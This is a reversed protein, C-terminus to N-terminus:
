LYGFRRLQDGLMQDFLRLTEEDMERRWRGVSQEPSPSTMHARKKAPPAVSARGELRCGLWRSLRDLETEWQLVLDEYRVVLHQESEVEDPVTGLLRRRREIFEFLYSRESQGARRGFGYYGRRTDFARISLWVDRPDRVLHIVRLPVVEQAFEVVWGPTKEAYAIPTEGVRDGWVERIRGGVALWLAELVEAELPRDTSPDRAALMHGPPATLSWPEPTTERVSRTDAPDLRKDLARRARRWMSTVRGTSEGRIASDAAYLRAVRAAYTLHRVEFPFIRDFAIRDAGALLEMMM